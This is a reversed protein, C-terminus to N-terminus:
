PKRLLDPVWAAARKELFAAVGEKGEPSGRVRAIRVATDAIVGDDIPRAAVARILLKAEVQARPGCLLLAGLFDNIRADLEDIPYIEHVLGIRFAEAATFREASLFYRRAHRAGIAAIVYPSITAPILGIKAESLAFTADQSAFAIDCCAVLGVGGAYAAGHVRAITPKSLSHLTKLMRALASADALNEDRTYSAMRRMWNLDAGSCFSKGEGLLVVARVADDADLAALAQTLEAISRDDFANHVEPRALTVLAVGERVDVRLTSYDRGRPRKAPSGSAKPAGRAAKAAGV